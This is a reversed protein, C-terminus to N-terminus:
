GFDVDGSLCDKRSTLETAAQPNSRRKGEAWRMERQHNRLHRATMRLELYLGTVSITEHIQNCFSVITRDPDAGKWVGVEDGSADAGEVADEDGAGVIDLDVARRLCRLFEHGM